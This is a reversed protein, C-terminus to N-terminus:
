VCIQAAYEEVHRCIERQRHCHSITILLQFSSKVRLENEVKTLLESNFSSGLDSRIVRPLGLRSFLKIMENAVKDTRQSTMAVAEPWTTAADVLILIYKKGSSSSPEFPGSFNMVWEQMPESVIPIPVLPARDKLNIRVVKQCPTCSLVYNRVAQELGPFSFHQRIRSITKSIGMHGSNLRDHALYLM